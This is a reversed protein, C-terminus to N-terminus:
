STRRDPLRAVEPDAMTAEAGLDTRYLIFLSAQNCATLYRIISYQDELCDCTTCVASGAQAWDSFPADTDVGEDESPELRRNM